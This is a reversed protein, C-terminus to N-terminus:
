QSMTAKYRTGCFTTDFMTKTALHNDKLAGALIYLGLLAKIGELSTEFFAASEASYKQRASCIKQNTYQVIINLIDNVNEYIIFQTFSM